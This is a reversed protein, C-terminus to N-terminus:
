ALPRTIRQVFDDDDEYRWVMLWPSRDQRCLVVPIDGSKADHEAQRMFSQVLANEPVITPANSQAVNITVSEALCFFLEPGTCRVAPDCSGGLCVPHEKAANTWRVLGAEYHKVEVHLGIPTECEVDAKGNGWRQATRAWKLGTIRSMLVAAELEARKGKSRSDTM